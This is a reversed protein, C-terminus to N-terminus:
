PQGGTYAPQVRHLRGGELRVIGLAYLLDLALVFWDFTLGPASGATGLDTWLRSVTKPETLHGLVTAGVALLARDPTVGKTPLIM